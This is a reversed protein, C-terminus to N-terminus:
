SAPQQREVPLEGRAKRLEAELGVIQNALELYVAGEGRAVAPDPLPQRPSERLVDGYVAEFYRSRSSLGYEARVKNSLAVRDIHKSRLIEARLHEATIAKRYARGTFNTRSLLDANEHTILGDSMELDAVICPVGIAAALLVSRGITLVVDHRQVLAGTIERQGDGGGVRTVKAFGEAELAALAADRSRSANHSIVLVNHPRDDPVTYQRIPMLQREDFWNRVISVSNLQPARALLREAVRESVAFVRRAEAITLPPHELPPMVGLIGHVRPVGPLLEGCLHFMTLHHSHVIDPAFRQVGLRAEPGFVKIGTSAEFQAALAGRMLTFIAVTLGRAALSEALETVYLESGTRSALHHIALLVKM